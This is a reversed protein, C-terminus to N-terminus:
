PSIQELVQVPLVTSEIKRLAVQRARIVIARVNPSPCVATVTGNSYRFRDDVPGSKKGNEFVDSKWVPVDSKRVPVDCFIEGPTRMVGTPGATPGVKESVDGPWWMKRLRWIESATPGVDECIEGSWWVEGAAPRINQSITGSSRMVPSASPRSSPRIREFIDGKARVLSHHLDRFSSRIIRYGASTPYCETDHQSDCHDTHGDHSVHIQLFTLPLRIAIFAGRQQGTRIHLSNVSTSIPDPQDQLHTQPAWFYCM